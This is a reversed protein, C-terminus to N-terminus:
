NSIVQQGSGQIKPCTYHPLLQFLFWRSNKTSLFPPTWSLWPSTGSLSSPSPPRSVSSLWAPMSPLPRTLNLLTETKLSPSPLLPCVATSALLFLFQPITSGKLDPAWAWPFLCTHTSLRPHPTPPYLQPVPVCSLPLLSIVPLASWPDYGMSQDCNTETACGSRQFQAENLIPHQGSSLSILNLSHAKIASCIIESTPVQLM